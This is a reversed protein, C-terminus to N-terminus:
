ADSFQVLLNGVLVLRQLWAEDSAVRSAVVEIPHGHAVSGLTIERVLLLLCLDRPGLVVVVLYVGEAVLALSSVRSGHM